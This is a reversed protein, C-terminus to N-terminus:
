LIFIIEYSYAKSKIIHKTNTDNAEERGENQDATNGEETEQYANSENDEKNEDSEKFDEVEDTTQMKLIYARKLVEKIIIKFDNLATNVILRKLNSKSNCSQLLDKAEELNNICVEFVQLTNNNQIFLNVLNQEKFLENYSAIIKKVELNFIKKFFLEAENSNLEDINPIWIEIDKKSENQSKIIIYGDDSISVGEKKINIENFEVEISGNKYTTIKFKSLSQIMVNDEQNLYVDKHNLLKIIKDDIPIPVLNKVTFWCINRLIITNDEISYFDIDDFFTSDADTWIAFEFSDSQYVNFKGLKRNFWFIRWNQISFRSLISTDWIKYTFSKIETIQNLIHSWDIRWDKSEEEITLQILHNLGLQKLKSLKFAGNFEGWLRVNKINEANDHIFSLEVNLNFNSQEENCIDGEILIQIKNLNNLFYQKEKTIDVREQFTVLDQDTDKENRLYLLDQIEFQYFYNQKGEKTFHNSLIVEYILRDSGELNWDWVKIADITGKHNNLILILFDIDNKTLNELNFKFLKSFRIFMDEKIRGISDFASIEM